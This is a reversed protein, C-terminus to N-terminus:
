SVAHIMELLTNDKLGILYDKLNYLCTKNDLLAFLINPFKKKYAAIAFEKRNKKSELSLNLPPMEAWDARVMEEVKKLGDVIKMIHGTHEPFYALTDDVKGLKVVELFGRESISSVMKSLALYAPNKCKVRLHSGSKQEQVVVYGEFTPDLPAMDLVEAWSTMPVGVVIKCEFIRATIVVDERVDEDLTEKNRITLLAISTDRYPTVIRNEPSMLEFVYTNKKNVLDKRLLDILKTGNEMGDWFLQAFTKTSCNNVPGEAYIMNRTSCAWNGSTRDFWLNIMTGDLKELVMCGKLDEPLKDSGGEGMNFFRSFGYSAIDWNDKYLILGRCEKVIPDGKFKYSDIMDYSFIVKGELEKFNIGLPVCIEEPTKGSRLAEQLKLM